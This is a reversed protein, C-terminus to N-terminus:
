QSSSTLTSIVRDLVDMPLDCAMPLGIVRATLGETAPLHNGPVDAYHDQRHVGPGYWARHEINAKDLCERTRVAASETELEVLAYCSAISPASVLTSGLAARAFRERYASVVTQFSRCKYKWGDLEALGVAAHYESMKGNISAARCDRSGLFGFNLSRMASVVLDVDSSIVCGGEGTSFSKTAHFSLTVPIRGLYQSSADSVAEFSAGGDIVVPIGTKQKFGLWPTQAVARGFAAVPIVLGTKALMPHRELESSALLWDGPDIDVFCPRYGCLEAALATAVFTFGPIIAIPRNTTAPGATALIAGVLASTGSAASAIAGEALDLHAALRGQFESVLPGWNSYVRTADIRELYPRLRDANPLLPRCVPVVTQESGSTLLQGEVLQNSTQNVMRAGFARQTMIRRPHPCYHSLLTQQNEAHM